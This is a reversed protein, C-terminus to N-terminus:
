TAVLKAGFIAILGFMLHLHVKAHGRVKVCNGGRNDKLDSFLREVASRVGYRRKTAPDMPVAPRTRSGKPAVIAVQGLDLAAARIPGGVYGADMLQYLVTGVRESTLRMLPIAVQSDHVSASTTVASVPLGEDTVDVHLKFGAWHVDHGKSNRKTGIDCAKPLEDLSSRPAQRLQREQRKEVRPKPLAGKKRGPRGKPGAAKRPKRLPRERAAVATSDRSVHMVVSSGLTERALFALVADGLGARAFGAFARSFTSESPVGRWFGCVARLGDDCLLARRFSKTDASGLWAKVVFARSLAARYGPRRGRGPRRVLHREVGVAELLCALYAHRADVNPALESLMSVFVPQRDLWFPSL